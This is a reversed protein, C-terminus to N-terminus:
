IGIDVRKIHLISFRGWISSPTRSPREVHTPNRLFLALPFLPSSLSRFRMNSGKYRYELARSENANLCVFLRPNHSIIQLTTAVALGVNCTLYIPSKLNVPKRNENSRFLFQRKTRVM